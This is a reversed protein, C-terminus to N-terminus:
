AQSKAQQLDGQLKVIQNVQEMHKKEQGDLDGKKVNIAENM